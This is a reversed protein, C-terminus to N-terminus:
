GSDYPTPGLVDSTPLVSADLGLNRTMTGALLPKKSSRFFKFNTSGPPPLLPSGVLPPLILADTGQQLLQLDAPGLFM